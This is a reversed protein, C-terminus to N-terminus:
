VTQEAQLRTRVQISFHYKPPTAIMPREESDSTNRWQALYGFRQEIQKAFGSFGSPKHPHRRDVPGVGNFDRFTEACVYRHLCNVVTRTTNSVYDRITKPRYGVLTRAVSPTLVIDIYLIRKIGLKLVCRWPCTPTHVNVGISTGIM